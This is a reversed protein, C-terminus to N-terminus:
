KTAHVIIEHQSPDFPRQDWDGYWELDRFGTDELMQKMKQQPLFRLRNDDRYERGDPFKFYTAFRVLEDKEEIIDHWYTVDGVDPVSVTERTEDPTWGDWSRFEINRNEFALIGGDKLHTYLNNFVSFIEDDALFVQFVHGTMVILDFRTSLKFSSATEQHWNVLDSDPRYNAVKLMGFAPEIGEVKHGLKALEVALWGTGCGVDLIHLKRDSRAAIESALKIYYQVDHDAENIPDYIQALQYDTYSNGQTIETM